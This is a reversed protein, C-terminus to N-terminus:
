DLNPLSFGCFKTSGPYPLPAVASSKDASLNRIPHPNL